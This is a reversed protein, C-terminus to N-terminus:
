TFILFGLRFCQNKGFQIKKYNKHHNFFYVNESSIFSGKEPLHFHDEEELYEYNLKGDAKIRAITITTRDGPIDTRKLDEKRQNRLLNEERENYILFLKNDMVEMQGTIFYRSYINDDEHERPNIVTWLTEGTEKGVGEIVVEDYNWHYVLNNFNNNNFRNNYIGTNLNANRSGRRRYQRVIYIIDEAPLVDLTQFNRDLENDERGAIHKIDRRTYTDKTTYREYGMRDLSMLFSKTIDGFPQKRYYGSIYINDENDSGLTLKDMFEKRIRIDYIYEMSDGTMHHIEYDYAPKKNIHETSHNRVYKKIAYTLKGSNSLHRDSISYKDSRDDSFFDGKQMITFGNMLDVVCYQYFYRKKKGAKEQDYFIAMKSRDNSLIIDLPYSFQFNGDQRIMSQSKKLIDFKVLDVIDTKRLTKHDFLQASIFQEGRKSTQFYIHALGEASNITAISEYSGKELDRLEVAHTLEMESNFRMIELDVDRDNQRTNYKREVFVAGDAEGIISYYGRDQYEEGWAITGGQAQINVWSALVLLICVYIKM